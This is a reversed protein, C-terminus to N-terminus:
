KFLKSWNLKGTPIEPIKRMKPLATEKQEKVFAPKECLNYTSSPTSTKKINSRKREKKNNMNSIFNKKFLNYEKMVYNKNNHYYFSVNYPRGYLMECMESVHIMWEPRKCLNYMSAFAYIDNSDVKLRLLTYLDNSLYIKYPVHYYSEEKGDLYFYIFDNNIKLRGITIFESTNSQFVFEYYINTIHEVFGYKNFIDIYKNKKIEEDYSLPVGIYEDHFYKNDKDCDTTLTFLKQYLCQFVSYKDIFPTQIDFRSSTCFAGRRKKPSYMVYHKKYAVNDNDKLNKVVKVLRKILTDYYDAEKNKIELDTNSINKNANYVNADESM